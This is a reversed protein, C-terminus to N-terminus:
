DIVVGVMRKGLNFVEAGLELALVSPTWSEEGGLTRARDSVPIEGVAVYADCSDLVPGKWRLLLALVLALKDLYKRTVRKWASDESV